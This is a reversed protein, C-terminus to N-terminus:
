WFRRADVRGCLAAAVYAGPLLGRRHSLPGVALWRRAAKCLYEDKFDRRAHARFALLRSM